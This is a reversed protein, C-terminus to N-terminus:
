GTVVEAVLPGYREVLQERTQSSVVRLGSGDARVSVASVAPDKRVLAAILCQEQWPAAADVFEVTVSPRQAAAAGVQTDFTSGPYRMVYLTRDDWCVGFLVDPHDTPGLEAVTGNLAALDLPLLVDGQTAPGDAVLGRLAAPGGRCERLGPRGPLPAPSPSASVVPDAPGVEPAGAGGPVTLLAACGAVVAVAAVARGARVRLARRRGAARLEDLPIGGTPRLGRAREALGEALEAEFGDEDAAM